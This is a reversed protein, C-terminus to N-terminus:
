ERVEVCFQSADSSSTMSDIQNLNRTLLTIWCCAASHSVCLSDSGEERAEVCIANGARHHGFGVWMGDAQIPPNALGPPPPAALEDLLLSPTFWRRKKALVVGGGQEINKEARPSLSEGLKKGLCCRPNKKPQQLRSRDRKPNALSICNSYM